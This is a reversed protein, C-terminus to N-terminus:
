KIREITIGVPRGVRAGLPRLIADAESCGANIQCIADALVSQTVIWPLSGYALTVYPASACEPTATAPSELAEPVQGGKPAPKPDVMGQRAEAPGKRATRATEGCKLCTTGAIRYHAFGCSCWWYTQEATKKRKPM